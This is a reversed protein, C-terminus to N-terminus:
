VIVPGANKDGGESKGAADTIAGLGKPKPWTQSPPPQRSRQQKANSRRRHCPGCVSRCNDPDLVGGRLRIDVVHDVESAEHQCGELRLQCVGGDRELVQVRVRRWAGDYRYSGDKRTSM